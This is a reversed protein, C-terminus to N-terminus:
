EQNNSFQGEISIFPSAKSCMLMCVLSGHNNWKEQWITQWSLSNMIEKIGVDRANLNDIGGMESIIEYVQKKLKIGLSNVSTKENYLGYKRLISEDYSTYLFSSLICCPLMTLHADIYISSNDDKAYCYINNSKSWTNYTSEIVGKDVYHILNDTNSELYHTVAGSSDLVKFNPGTFRRTDKISFESFGLQQSLSRAAIVQEQNHKFRIFNWVAYGGASIFSKANEMVKNLDTGVRHLAHTKSDIGDIAFFVQHSNPLVSVLEAWWDPKRLSGNTHIMVHAEPNKIKIYKCMKLIDNNLVPEGFSGCFLFTKVQKVVEEDFITVFDEYTWDNIKLFPNDIGSHINRPCM